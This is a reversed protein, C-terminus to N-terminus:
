FVHRFVVGDKGLQIGQNILVNRLDVGKNENRFHFVRGDWAFLRIINPMVHWEIEKLEGAKAMSLIEELTIERGWNVKDSSKSVSPKDQAPNPSQFKIQGENAEAPEKSQAIASTSSQPAKEQTHKSTLGISEAEPSGAPHSGCGASLLIALLPVVL